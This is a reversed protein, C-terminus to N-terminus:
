PVKWTMISWRARLIAKSNGLIGGTGHVIQKLQLPKVDFVKVGFPLLTSGYYIALPGLAPTQEYSAMHNLADALNVCDRFSVISTARGVNGTLWATVGDVGAQSEFVVGEQPGAPRRDINVFSHNGISSM